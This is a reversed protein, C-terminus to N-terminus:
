FQVSQKKKGPEDSSSLYMQSYSRVIKSLEGFDLWIHKCQSCGQIIINGPGGYPYAEMPKHCAPCALNRQFEAPDPQYPDEERVKEPSSSLRLIPLMRSQDILNGRCTPCAYIRINAIVATVLPQECAPCHYPSIEDLLAVGEKNPDSFNYCGCYNCHFFDKGDEVNMPAGCQKCNM